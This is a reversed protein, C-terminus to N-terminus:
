KKAGTSSASDSSSLYRQLKVKVSSNLRRRGTLAKALNSPDIGLDRAVQNRGLDRVRQQLGFLLSANMEKQRDADRRLSEAANSLAIVANGAVPRGRVVDNVRHHSFGAKRALSRLGFEKKAKKIVSILKIRDEPSLDYEIEADDEGIVERETLKDAEKGIPQIAESFIRRRYLPGREDYDAGWFKAEPHLHYRVLSRGLSILWEQPVPEGTVRDFANAAAVMVDKSYPAAPRPERRKTRRGLASHPDEAALQVNSKPHLSLLFNFPRVQEVWPRHRNYDRFWGLMNPTTAAYRSAAPRDFGRLHDLPVNDPHGEITALIIERWLDEQWKEVGIRNIRENRDPDDYPALLHGLGHGSAKRIVIGGDPSRNFLAYRKASVALCYLPELCEVNGERGPCFNVNEVQLISSKEADVEDYPNLPKFWDCVALARRLFTAHDLTEPKSIALSDTDCFVWSLGEDLARNEALALMLRAGGTILAGVLPHFYRGPKEYKASVVGWPQDRWGHCIMVEPEDLDEVNLEVFIGYSTANALIKIAQQDSKLALQDAVSAREIQRKIDQRLEILRKYFDDVSPEIQYASNGAITIPKLNSQINKPTFRIACIVRPARGTIIKSVLCDALTFWLPQKRTLRNLGITATDDDGFPGRVPYHARVPFVDDNPLVQVLVNLNKWVDAQQLNCAGVTDLFKRV